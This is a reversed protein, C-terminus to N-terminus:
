THCWEGVDNEEREICGRCDDNLDEKGDADQLLFEQAFVVNWGEKQDDSPWYQDNQSGVKFFDFHCSLFDPIIQGRPRGNCEERHSERQNIDWEKSESPLYFNRM